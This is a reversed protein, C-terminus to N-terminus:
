RMIARYRPLMHQALLDTIAEDTLDIEVNKNVVRVTLGGHSRSGLNVTIGSRLDDGVVGQLFQTLRDPKGAEITRRVEDESLNEAPLLIDLQEEELGETAKRAIVYIMRKVVEPDQVEHQVLEQLRERLGEHVKAGFDREADRAAMRLADEGAAQFQQAQERATRLIQKAEARAAEVIGDAKQQAEAVIKDAQQRGEAVGEQSLRDILEQIGATAPQESM